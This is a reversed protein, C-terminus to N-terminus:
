ACNTLRLIAVLAAIFSLSTGICWKWHNTAFHKVPHILRKAEDYGKPTLTIVLSDIKAFHRAELEKSLNFTLDKVVDESIGVVIEPHEKSFVKEM